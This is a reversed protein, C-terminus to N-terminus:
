IIQLLFEYTFPSVADQVNRDIDSRMVKEYLKKVKVSNEMNWSSRESNPVADIVQTCLKLSGSIRSSSLTCSRSCLLIAKLVVLDLTKSAKAASFFRRGPITAHADILIQGGSPPNPGEFGECPWQCSSIKALIALSLLSTSVDEVDRAKLTTILSNQLTLLTSPPLIGLNKLTLSSFARCLPEITKYSPNQIAKESSSRLFSSFSAPMPIEFPEQMLALCARAYQM